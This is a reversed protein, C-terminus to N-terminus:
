RKFLGKGLISKLKSEKVAASTEAKKKGEAKSMTPAPENTEPITPEEVKLAQAKDQWEKALPRSTRAKSSAKDDWLFTILEATTFRLDRILRKDDRSIQVQRGTPGVYKLQFPEKHELFGEVFSYLAEATDEKTIAMQIITQDPMRVRLSSGKAASANLKELRATELDALEKDSLLRQNRTKAALAAQHSKAHEITPEYDRENWVRRAAQPTSSTPASYIQVNRGMALVPQPSPTPDVAPSPASQTHPELPKESPAGPMTSLLLEESQKSDVDMPEPDPEDLRITEGAITTMAEPAAKDPDPFSAMQSADAAHAGPAAPTDSSKFYQSIEAMADELPTGSNQFSLRLLASGSDFGLQSLTQQLGVFSSQERHGPMVTIVPMEYNLRGAGSTSSPVGRQTFNYNGGQGSELQRLIEWLSTNSAFKQTLRVNKESAPLQLAVSIVTPSRSAQVLELRAGQPLNALRIQQSLSIPKNNYRCLANGIRVWMSLMRLLKSSLSNTKVSVSNRALKM